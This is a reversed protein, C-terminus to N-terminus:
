PILACRWDLTSPYNNTSNLVPFFVGSLGTTIQFATNLNGNTKEGTAPYVNITSPSDNVVTIMENAEGNLISPLILSGTAVSKTVRMLQNSIRAATNQTAAPGPVVEVISQGQLNGGIVFMVANNTTSM